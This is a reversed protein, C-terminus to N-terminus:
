IIARLGDRLAALHPADYLRHDMTLALVTKDNDRGIAVVIPVGEADFLPVFGGEFDWDTLATVALSAPAPPLLQVTDGLRPLVVLPKKLARRRKARLRRLMDCHGAVLVSGIGDPHRIRVLVRPEAYQYVSERRFVRRLEPNKELVVMCATVVDVTSCRKVTIQTWVPAPVSSARILSLHRGTTPIIEPPANYGRCLASLRRMAPGPRVGLRTCTETHRRLAEAGIRRLVGAGYLHLIPLAFGPSLAISALAQEIDPLHEMLEDPSPLDFGWADEVHRAEDAEIARFLEAGWGADALLRFVTELWQEAVLNLLALSAPGTLATLRDVLETTAEAPPEVGGLSQALNRFVGFHVLEDDLQGDTADGRRAALVAIEEFQALTSYLRRAAIKEWPDRISPAFAEICAIRELSSAALM